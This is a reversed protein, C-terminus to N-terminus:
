KKSNIKIILQLKKSNKKEGLFNVKLFLEIPSFPAAFKDTDIEASELHGKVM